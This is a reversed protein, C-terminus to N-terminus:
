APQTGEAAAASIGNYTWVVQGASYLTAGEPAGVLAVALRRADHPTLVLEDDWPEGTRLVKWLLRVRQRWGSQYDSGKYFLRWTSVYVEGDDSKSVRVAHTNCACVILPESESYSRASM